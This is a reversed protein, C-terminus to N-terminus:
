ICTAPSHGSPIIKLGCKIYMCSKGHIYIARTACIANTCECKSYVHNETYTARDVNELRFIKQAQTGAM